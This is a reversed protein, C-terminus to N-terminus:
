DSATSTVFDANKWPGYKIIKVVKGENEEQSLAMLISFRPNNRVLAALREPSMLMFATTLADARTTPWPEDAPLWIWAALKGEVPRGTRPNMIHRGKEVGSGSLVSNMALLRVWTRRRDLPNSITLPWGAGSALQGKLARVASGGASVLAKDIDWEYLMDTIKDAAFGKGIGGLDLSVCAKRVTVTYDDEDLTLLEMGTCAKARVLASRDIKASTKNEKWFHLLPGITIDFLGDTMQSINQAQRLCDFTEPNVVARQGPQLANIRSIDSNEVFRSFYRELRDVEEFAAGAAHRAYEADSHVILLEFVTGMAQHAFRRLGAIGEPAANVMNPDRLKM